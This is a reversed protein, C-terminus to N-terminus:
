ELNLPKFGSKSPKDIDITAMYNNDFNFIIPDRDLDLEAVHWRRGDNKLYDIMTKYDLFITGGKGAGSEIPMKGNEFDESIHHKWATGTYLIKKIKQKKDIKTAWDPKKLPKKPHQYFTNENLEYGWDEEGWPDNELDIKKVMKGYIKIPVREDVCYSQRDDGKFVIIGSHNYEIRKIMWTFFLQQTHSFFEVLHGVTLDWVIKFYDEDLRCSGNINYNKYFEQFLVMESDDFFKKRIDFLLVENFKEKENNEQVFGWNEEGWPDDDLNFRKIKIKNKDLLDKLGYSNHNGNNWRVIYNLEINDDPGTINVIIGNGDGGECYAQKRFRSEDRIKVEQGIVFKTDYELKERVVGWNEEGWPDDDLNFKRKIKKINKEFDREFDQINDYTPIDPYINFPWSNKGIDSHGRYIDGDVMYFIKYFEEYPVQRPQINNAWIFGLEELLDMLFYYDDENKIKVIFNNTTGLNEQVVGWNEEGWPDDEPNRKKKKKNNKNFYELFEDLSYFMLADKYQPLNFPISSAFYIKRYTFIVAINDINKPRWSTARDGSGWEFGLEDAIEMLIRFNNLNSNILNSDNKLIVIFDDM